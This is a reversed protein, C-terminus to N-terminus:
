RFFPKLFSKVMHEIAPIIGPKDAKELAETWVSYNFLTSLGGYAIIIAGLAATFVSIISALLLSGAKLAVVALVSLCVTVGLFTVALLTSALLNVILLAAALEFFFLWHESVARVTHHWAAVIGEDRRIVNVLCLMVFLNTILALPLILTYVALYIIFNIAVSATLLKALLLGALSYFIMLAIFGLANVAFLRLFHLHHLYKTLERWGLYKKNKAGRVAATLTLQQSGLIGIALILLALILLAITLWARSPQDIVLIKFYSALWPIRQWTEEITTWSIFKQPAVRWFTEFVNQFVTGTNALGALAAVFWLEKHRWSTGWARRMFSAYLGFSSRWTKENAM